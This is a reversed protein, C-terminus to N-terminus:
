RSYHATLSGDCKNITMELTGDGTVVTVMLIGGVVRNPPLHAPYQFITWYFGDDNVVIKNAPKIKDRRSHAVALYIERAAQATAVIPGQIMGDAKTCTIPSAPEAQVSGTGAAFIVLGGFTMRWFARKINLKMSYYREQVPEAYRVM